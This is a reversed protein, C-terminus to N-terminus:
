SKYNCATGFLPTHLNKVLYIEEKVTHTDKRLTGTFQGCVQLFTKGPGQLGQSFTQLLSQFPAILEPIVTVEAGTDIKFEIQTDNLHIFQEL